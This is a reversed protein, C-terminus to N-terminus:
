RLYENQSEALTADMVQHNVANKRKDHKLIDFLLIYALLTKHLIFLRNISKDITILFMLSSTFFNERVM